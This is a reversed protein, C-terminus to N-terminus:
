GRWLVGQYTWRLRPNSSGPACRIDRALYWYNLKVVVCVVRELVKKMLPFLSKSEWGNVGWDDFDSAPARTYGM